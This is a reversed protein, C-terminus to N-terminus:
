KKLTCFVKRSSFFLPRNKLIKEVRPGVPKKSLRLRGNPASKTQEAACAPLRKEVCAPPKGFLVRLQRNQVFNVFASAFFKSKGQISM